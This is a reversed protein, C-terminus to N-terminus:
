GLLFIVFGILVQPSLGLIVNTTSHHFRHHFDNFPKLIGPEWGLFNRPAELFDPILACFAGAGALILVETKSGWFWYILGATIGLEVIELGIATLKNRKGTSLGTGIDWHPIWDELYHAALCAPIFLLPHSLQTALFAGTLGHAISLM